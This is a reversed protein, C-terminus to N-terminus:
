TEDPIRISIEQLCGYAVDLVELSDLFLQLDSKLTGIMFNVTKAVNVLSEHQVTSTGVGVAEHGRHVTQCCCIRTL